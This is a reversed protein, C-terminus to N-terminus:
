ACCETVAILVFFAIVGLLIAVQPEMEIKVHM